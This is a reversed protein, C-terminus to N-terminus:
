NEFIKSLTTEFCDMKRARGNGPRGEEVSEKEV